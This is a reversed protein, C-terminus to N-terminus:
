MKNKLSKFLPLNGLLYSHSIAVYNLENLIKLKNQKLIDIIVNQSVIAKVGLERSTYLTDIDFIEMLLRDKFIFENSLRSPSNIKDTILVADRHISFWKNIADIDLPIYKNFVNRSMFDHYSPPVEGEWDTLKAWEMWNHVAVIKNDSTVQLDLEFYKAGLSYNYDLADLSNTYIDGNIEGGAHAIFFQIIKM